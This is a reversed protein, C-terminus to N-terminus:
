QCCLPKGANDVANILDILPSTIRSFLGIKLDKSSQSDSGTNHDDVIDISKATINLDKGAVVDAVKQNYNNAATINVNGDLSGLQSREQTVSGSSSNNQNAM